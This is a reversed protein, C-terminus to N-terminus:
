FRKRLRRLNRWWIVRLVWGAPAPVGIEEDWTFRTRRGFFGTPELRFRGVGTVLGVHRVGIVEGEIWETVEMADVLRFPGVKTDCLFTTGVGSRSESTFRIAEADAMWEVHSALSRVDDWVRAPPADIVISVKIRTRTIWRV